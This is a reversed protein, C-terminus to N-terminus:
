DIVKGEVSDTSPTQWWRSIENATDRWKTYLKRHEPAIETFRVLWSKDKSWEELLAAATDYDLGVETLIAPDGLIQAASGSATFNVQEPDLEKDSLPVISGPDAKNAAAIQTETMWLDDGTRKNHVAKTTEIAKPKQDAMAMLSKYYEQHNPEWGASEKTLRDRVVAHYKKGDRIAQIDDESARKITAIMADDLKEAKIRAKEKAITQQQSTYAGPEMKRAHAATAASEERGKTRRWEALAKELFMPPYNRRKYERVYEKETKFDKDAMGYIIKATIEEDNATSYRRLTTELGSSPLDSTSVGTLTGLGRILRNDDMERKNMFSILQLYDSASLRSGVNFLNDAM